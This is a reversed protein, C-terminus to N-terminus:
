GKGFLPKSAAQSLLDAVRDPDGGFAKLMDRRWAYATM